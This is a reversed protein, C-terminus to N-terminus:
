NSTKASAATRPLGAARVSHAIWCNFYAALALWRKPNFVWAVKEPAAVTVLDCGARLAAIGALAATLLGSQSLVTFRGGVGPPIEFCPVKETDAWTKLYGQHPDTVAVLHNKAKLGKQGLKELIVMLAALPEM